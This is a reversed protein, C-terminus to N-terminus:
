YYFVKVKLGKKQATKIMHETGKSKKDWFAMLVGKNGIMAYKAMDDNRIFGASKGLKEWEPIFQKVPVNNEKAWREGLLDAGRAGGSVIESITIHKLAYEMKEKLLEYHNFDRGGAIIVRM